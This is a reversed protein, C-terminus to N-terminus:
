LGMEESPAETKGKKGEDVGMAKGLSGEPPATTPNEPPIPDTSGGGCGIAIFPIVVMVATVVFRRM